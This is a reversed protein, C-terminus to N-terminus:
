KKFKLKITLGGSINSGILGYNNIWPKFEISLDDSVDFSKLHADVNADIINLLYVAAIGIVSFDRYKKYYLKQTQLQDQSLGNVTKISTDRVVKLLGNRYFHYQENNTHFMYIFAGLGAYVIPVKWYKKNYVQGLGPLVASLITAKRPGKYIQNKSSKNKQISDARLSDANSKQAVGNFTFLSIFVIIFVSRM